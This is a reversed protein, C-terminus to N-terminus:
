CLLLENMSLTTTLERMCEKVSRKGGERLKTVTTDGYKVHQIGPFVEEIDEWYIVYQDNVQDCPIKEIDISGKARFSQSVEMTHEPHHRYTNAILLFLSRKHSIYSLPISQALTCLHHSHLSSRFFPSFAAPDCSDLTSSPAPVANGSARRRNSKSLFLEKRPGVNTICENANDIDQFAPTHTPSGYLVAIIWVSDKRFTGRRM